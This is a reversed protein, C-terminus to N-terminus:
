TIRSTRAHAVFISKMQAQVNLINSSTRLEHQYKEKDKQEFNLILFDREMLYFCAHTTSCQILITNIILSLVVGSKLPCFFSSYLARPSSAGVGVTHGGPM